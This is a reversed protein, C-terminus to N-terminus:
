RRRRHVAGNSYLMSNEILDYLDGSTIGQARLRETELQRSRPDATLRELDGSRIVIYTDDERRLVPSVLRYHRFLGHPDSDLEAHTVTPPAGPTEARHAHTNIKM